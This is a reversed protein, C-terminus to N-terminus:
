TTVPALFQLIDMFKLRETKICPYKGAKKVTFNPQQRHKCLEKFLFKKILKVDYGASNFGFVALEKCYDEFKKFLNELSKLRTSTVGGNEDMELDDDSGDGQLRDMEQVKLQKLQEFIYEFREVCAEYKKKAMELLTDVLKATLEEPDKSSVHVTEVGELNCGVSFSVPVHVKNWSTGEESEIEEAQDIGERFDRQYAEFDYCAFWKEYKDEEQVRVGMEELEEFVSLKNRYVGGPFVYKVTADCKSQHRLHNSMKTSVKQCRDCIFQKSYMKIDTILSLHNEYLNLYIKTPFSAQSLYITKASGDEKLFMVFLQTEYFTELQPFDILEVGKFDQPNVGFHECYQDFLEKAKLNCNHRTKGFKAIALFRFFCLHDKYRYAHHEDKELAIVYRNNKIYDPLNPPNGLPYSTMVLHIRLSVIREIVWKTNPRQDKLHSPFDQSTLFDLLTDLDHQNRILRPSNLLQDNNSAYHYRFEGTERHQLIFSFSMNIKFANTQRLFIDKLVRAITEILPSNSHNLYRLFIKSRRNITETDRIRHFNRVYIQRLNPDTGWPQDDHFFQRVEDPVDTPSLGFGRQQANQDTERHQLIFSFSMNIKFANTQRLFIDKLVRAITEILPSNSHSLYRLFIKSRRNITETDRIRHFNRVYIQRLNPDTGWPQDDHFFQRVEDPVDTPPLGFGRQQANQDSVQNDPPPDVIYPGCRAVKPPLNSTLSTHRKLHRELDSKRPTSYDCDNCSFSTSSKEHITRVHRNLNGM